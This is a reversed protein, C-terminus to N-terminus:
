ELMSVTLPGVSPLCLMEDGMYFERIHTQANTEAIYEDLM